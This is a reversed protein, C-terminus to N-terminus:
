WPAWIDVFIPLKKARAEALAAAYDDTIFPLVSKSAFAAAATLTLVVFSSAVFWRSRM